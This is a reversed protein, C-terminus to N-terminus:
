SLSHHPLGSLAHPDGQFIAELVLSSSVRVVASSTASPRAVAAELVGHKALAIGLFETTSRGNYQGSFVYLSLLRSHFVTKIFATDGRSRAIGIASCMSYSRAEYNYLKKPDAPAAFQEFFIAGEPGGYAVHQRISLPPVAYTHNGCTVSVNTVPFKVDMWPGPMESTTLMNVSPPNAPGVTNIAVVIAIGTLVM